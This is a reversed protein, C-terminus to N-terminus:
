FDGFDDVITLGKQKMREALVKAVKDLNETSKRLDCVMPQSLTAQRPSDDFPIATGVDEFGLEHLINMLFYDQEVAAVAKKFDRQVAERMTRLMMWSYIGLKRINPHVVGRTLEVIGEGHPLNSKKHGWVSLPSKITSDTLRITGVVKGESEATVFFSFRDFEDDKTTGLEYGVNRVELISDTCRDSVSIRIPSSEWEACELPRHWMSWMQHKHTESIELFMSASSAVDFEDQTRMVKVPVELLIEVRGDDYEIFFPSSFLSGLMKMLEHTPEFQKWFIRGPVESVLERRFNMFTMAAESGQAYGYYLRLRENLTFLDKLQQKIALSMGARFGLSNKMVYVRTAERAIRFFADFSFLALKRGRFESWEPETNQLLKLRVMEQLARLHRPHPAITPKNMWRSVSAQSVELANALQSPKLELLQVSKRILEAFNGSSQGASELEKLLESLPSVDAM